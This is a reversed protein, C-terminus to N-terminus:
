AVRSKADANDVLHLRLADVDVGCAYIVRPDTLGSLLFDGLRLFKGKMADFSGQNQENLLGVLSPGMLAPYSLDVCLSRLSHAVQVPEGLVANIRRQSPGMSGVLADGYEMGMELQLERGLRISDSIFSTPVLGQTALDKDGKALEEQRLCETETHAWVYLWNQSQSWLTQPLQAIKLLVDSGPLERWVALVETGQIHELEGGLLRIEKNMMFLYQHLLKASLAPSQSACFRDFNRLNTSMVIVSSQKALVEESEPALAVEKAVSESMFRSMNEYLRTRQWRLQALQEASL